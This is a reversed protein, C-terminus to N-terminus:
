RGVREKPTKPRARGYGVFGLGVGVIGLASWLLPTRWGPSADVATVSANTGLPGVSVLMVEARSKQSWGPALKVAPLAQSAMEKTTLGVGLTFPGAGRASFLIEVPHYRALITLGEGGMVGERVQAQVRVEKVHANAVAIDPSRIELTKNLLRYVTESTLATWAQTANARTSWQTNAITNSQPLNLQMSVLPFRGGLDAIWEDASAGTRLPITLTEYETRAFPSDPSEILLGRVADAPFSSEGIVTLRVFRARQGTGLFRLSERMTDGVKLRYATGEALTSWKVLDDSGEIKIPLAFERASEAVDLVVHAAAEPDALSAFHWVRNSAAKPVAAAAWKPSVTVRLAAQGRVREILMGELQIEKMVNDQLTIKGEGERQIIVPILAVQSASGRKGMPEAQIVAFPVAEGAANFLGLDAYGAHLSARIAESPLTFRALSANAPVSVSAHHNFQNLPYAANAASSLFVGVLVFIRVSFMLKLQWM